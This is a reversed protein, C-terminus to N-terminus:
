GTRWPGIWCTGSKQGPSTPPPTAAKDAREQRLRAREARYLIYAKAVRAHGNRDFDKGGCGPNGGRHPSVPPLTKELYQVVQDTLGEAISRDRGGVAM